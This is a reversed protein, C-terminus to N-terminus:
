LIFGILSFISASTKRRTHPTHEAFFSPRACSLLLPVVCFTSKKKTWEDLLYEDYNVTWSSFTYHERAFVAYCGKRKELKKWILNDIRTQCVTLPSPFLSEFLILSSGERLIPKPTIKRPRAVLVSRQFLPSILLGTASSSAKESFFPKAYNFLKRRITKLLTRLSIFFQELFIMMIIVIVRSYENRSNLLIWLIASSIFLLALSKLMVLDFNDSNVWKIARDRFHFM